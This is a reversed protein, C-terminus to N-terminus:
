GDGDFDGSLWTQGRLARRGNEAPAEEWYGSLDSAFSQETNFGVETLRICM